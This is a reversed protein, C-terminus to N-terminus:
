KGADWVALARQLAIAEDTYIKGTIGDNTTAHSARRAAKVLVEVRSLIEDLDAEAAKARLYNRQSVESWERAVRDRDAEALIARQAWEERTAAEIRYDSM